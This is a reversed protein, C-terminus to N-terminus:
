GHKVGGWDNPLVQTQAHTTGISHNMVLGCLVLALTTQM